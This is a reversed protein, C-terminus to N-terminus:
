VVYWARAIFNKLTFFFTNFIRAVVRRGRIRMPIGRVNTREAFTVSSLLLSALLECICCSLFCLCLTVIWSLRFFPKPTVVTNPHSLTLSRYELWSSLLAPPFKSCQASEEILLISQCITKSKRRFKPSLKSCRSVKPIIPKQDLTQFLLPRLSKEEIASWSYQSKGLPLKQQQM